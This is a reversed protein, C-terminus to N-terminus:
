KGELMVADNGEAIVTLHFIRESDKDGARMDIRITSGVGGNGIEEARNKRIILKEHVKVYNGRGAAALDGVVYVGHDDFTCRVSRSGHCERIGIQRDGIVTIAVVPAVRHTLAAGLTGEAKQVNGALPDANRVRRAGNGSGVGGVYVDSPCLDERCIKVVGPNASTDRVFGFKGGIGGGIGQGGTHLVLQVGTIDDVTPKLIGGQCAGRQGRQCIKFLIIEEIGLPLEERGVDRKRHTLKIIYVVIGCDVICAGMGYGRRYCVTVAAYLKGIKPSAVIGSDASLRGYRDMVNGIATHIGKRNGGGIAVSFSGGCALIERDADGLCGQGDCCIGLLDGVAVGVDRQGVGLDSQKPRIADGTAEATLFVCVGPYVGDGETRNRCAFIILDGVLGGVVGYVLRLVIHTANGKLTARSDIVARMVRESDAAGQWGTKVADPHRDGVHTFGDM